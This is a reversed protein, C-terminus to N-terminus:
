PGAHASMARYRTLDEPVFGGALRLLKFGESDNLFYVAESVGRSGVMRNQVHERAYEMCKGSVDGLYYKEFILHDYRQLSVALAAKSDAEELLRSYFENKNTFNQDYAHPSTAARVEQDEEFSLQMNPHTMIHKKVFEAIYACFADIGEELLPYIPGPKASLKEIIQEIVPEYYETIHRGPVVELKLAEEAENLLQTFKECRGCLLALEEYLKSMIDRLRCLREMQSRVAYIDAIAELANQAGRFPKHIYIEQYRLDIERAYGDIRNDLEKNKNPLYFKAALLGEKAIHEKVSTLVANIDFNSIGICGSPGGGAFNAEFFLRARNGFLLEEVQRISAKHLNRGSIKNVAISEMDSVLQGASIPVGIAAQVAPHEPLNLGTTTLPPKILYSFAKKFATFVIEKYPKTLKAMGATAFLPQGLDRSKQLLSEEFNSDAILLHLIEILALNNQMNEDKIVNHENRDSFLWVIDYLNEKQFDQVHRLLQLSAASRAEFDSQTNSESLLIFLSMHVIPFDEEFLTRILRGAQECETPNAAGPTIVSINVRKINLGEENRQIKAKLTRITENAPLKNDQDLQIFVAPHRLREKSITSTQQAEQRYKEAFKWAYEVITNMIQM